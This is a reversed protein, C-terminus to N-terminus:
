DGLPIVRIDPRVGIHAQSMEQKRTDAFQSLKQHYSWLAFLLLSVSLTLSLLHSLHQRLLRLARTMQNEVTKVSIDLQQAIEKNSLEEFRNLVFVTRCRDPLRDIARQIELELEAQELQKQAGPLASPLPLEAPVSDSLPLRRDRLYNLSRNVTARRLYAGATGEIRLKQRNRWLEYFVEQALDEALNSDRLIRLAARCMDAYHRRFFLEM